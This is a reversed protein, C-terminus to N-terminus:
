KKGNDNKGSIFGVVTSLLAITKFKQIILGSKLAYMEIEQMDYLTVNVGHAKHFIKYLLGMFNKAPLLILFIGKPSLMKSVNEFVKEPNTCFELVGLFLILDFKRDAIFEEANACFKDQIRSDLQDLMKISVDVCTIPCDFREKVLYAYYGSGCGLDLVNVPSDILSVVAQAERKKLWGWLGKKSNHLYHEAISDFYTKVNHSM